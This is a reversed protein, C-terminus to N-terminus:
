KLFYEGSDGIGCGPGNLLDLEKVSKLCFGKRELGTRLDGSRHLRKM